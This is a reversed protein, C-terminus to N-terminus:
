GETFGQAPGHPKLIASSGKLSQGYGRDNEQGKKKARVVTSVTDEKKIIPVKTKAIRLTNMQM